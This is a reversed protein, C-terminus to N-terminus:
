KIVKASDLFVSKMTMGRCRGTVLIKQGKKLKAIQLKDDKSFEFVVRNIGHKDVAFSVQPYGTASTTIAHINGQIAVTKGKYADEAAVENDDFAQWLAAPTMAASEARVQAALAEYVKKHEPNEANAVLIDAQQIAEEFKGQSKLADILTSRGMATKPNAAIAQEAEAQAKAFDKKQWYAHGRVAYVYGKYQLDDGVDKALVDDSLKLFADPTIKRNFLEDAKVRFEDLTLALAAGAGALSLLAAVLSCLLATKM